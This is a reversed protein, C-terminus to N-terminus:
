IKLIVRHRGVIMICLKMSKDFLARNQGKDELSSSVAFKIFIDPKFSRVFQKLDKTTNKIHM